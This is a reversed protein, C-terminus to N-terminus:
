SLSCFTWNIFTENWQIRKPQTQTYKLSPDNDKNTREKGKEKAQIRNYEVAVQINRTYKTHRKWTSKIYKSEKGILFCFFLFFFFSFFAYNGHVFAMLECFHIVHDM